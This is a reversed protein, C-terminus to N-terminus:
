GPSGRASFSFHKTSQYFLVCLYMGRVKWCLGWGTTLNQGNTKGLSRIVTIEAQMVVFTIMVAWSICSQKVLVFPSQIYVQGRVLLAPKFSLSSFAFLLAPFWPSYAQQILRESLIIHYTKHTHKKLVSSGFSLISFYEIPMMDSVCHNM